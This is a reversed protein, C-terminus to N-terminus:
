GSLRHCNMPIRKARSREHVFVDAMRRLDRCLLVKAVFNHATQCLRWAFQGAFKEVVFMARLQELLDALQGLVVDRASLDLNQSQMARLHPVRETRLDFQDTEAGARSRLRADQEFFQAIRANIYRDVDRLLLELFRARAKSFHKRRQLNEWNRGIIEFRELQGQRALKRRSAHNIKRSRGNAVEIRVRGAFKEGAKNVKRALATAQEDADIELFISM